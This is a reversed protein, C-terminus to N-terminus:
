FSAAAGILINKKFRDGLFFNYLVHIFTTNDQIINKEVGCKELSKAGYTALLKAMEMDNALLAYDLPFKQIDVNIMRKNISENIYEQAWNELIIKVLEHNGCAVFLGLVDSNGGKYKFCKENLNSVTFDKKRSFIKKALVDDRTNLIFIVIQTAYQPLCSELKHLTTDLMDDHEKYIFKSLYSPARCAFRGFQVSSTDQVIKFYFKTSLLYASIKNRNSLGIHSSGQKYIDLLYFKNIYSSNPDFVRIKIYNGVITFILGIVHSYNGSDVYMSDLNMSKTLILACDIVRDVIQNLNNKIIKAKEYQDINPDVQSLLFYFSRMLIYQEYINYKQALINIRQQHFNGEDRTAYLVKKAVMRDYSTNKKECIEMIDKGFINQDLECQANLNPNISKSIQTCKGLLWYSDSFKILKIHVRAQELNYPVSDFTIETDNIKIEKIYNMADLSLVREYNKKFWSNIENVDIIILSKFNSQFTKLRTDLKESKVSDIALDIQDGKMKLYRIAVFYMQERSVNLTFFNRYNPLLFYNFAEVRKDESNGLLINRLLSKDDEKYTLIYDIGKEFKAVRVSFEKNLHNHVKLGGNLSIERSYGVSAYVKYDERNM